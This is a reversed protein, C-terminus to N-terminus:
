AIVQVSMNCSNEYFGAIRNENNTTSFSADAYIFDGEEVDAYAFITITKWVDINLGAPFISRSLEKAEGNTKKRIIHSVSYTGNPSELWLTLDVRIKSIGAGIIVGNNAFTLGSGNQSKLNNFQVKNRREVYQEETLNIFIYDNIAKPIVKDFYKTKLEVELIEENANAESVKGIAMSKGSKHFNILDFGTGIEKEIITPEFSDAAYFEVDYSSAQDINGDGIIVYNDGTKNISITTTSENVYTTYEYNNSNASSLKYGIKFTAKNNGGVSSISAAFSCKLYTGEDSEKGNEDCRTVDAVTILPRSYDVVQYSKEVTNSAINRNDTVSATVKCEGINSLYNSIYTQYNSSGGDMVSYYAKIPSGYIPTGTVKVLLKSKNKVYVGWNLNKMVEDVEEISISATPKVSDPVTLTVSCSESGVYVGNQYTDCKITVNASKTNTIYPAYKSIDPIWTKSDGVGSFAEINQGNFQIFIEHNFTNSKRNTYIVVSSGLTTNECTPKSARPITTLTVYSNVQPVTFSKNGNGHSSSFGITLSKTGDNNHPVNEFYARGVEVYEKNNPITVSRPETVTITNKGECYFYRTFNGTTSTATGSYNNTRRLYAIMLINSTNNASNRSSEWSVYGSIVSNNTAINFTGSAM